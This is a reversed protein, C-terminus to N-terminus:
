AAAETTLSLSARATVPGHRRWFLRTRPNECVAGFVGVREAMRRLFARQTRERRLRRGAQAILLVHLRDPDSLEPLAGALQEAPDLSALRDFDGVTATRDRNERWARCTPREVPKACRAQDLRCRGVEVVQGIREHERWPSLAGRRYERPQPPIFASLWRGPSRRSRSVPRGRALILPVAGNGEAAAAAPTSRTPGSRPAARM